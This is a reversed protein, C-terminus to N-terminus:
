VDDVTKPETVFVPAFAAIQDAHRKFNEELNVYVLDPELKRIHAVAPTKTGGLRPRELGKPFICFDTIGVVSDGAGLDFLTETLSPVLSVVRRPPSLFDFERGLIDRFVSFSERRQTVASRRLSFTTRKGGRVSPPM